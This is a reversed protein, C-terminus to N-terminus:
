GAASRSSSISRWGAGLDARPLSVGEHGLAVASALVFRLWDLAPYSASSTRKRIPASDAAGPNEDARRVPGASIADQSVTM